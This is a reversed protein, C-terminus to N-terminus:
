VLPGWDGRPPLCLPSLLSGTPKWAYSPKDELECAAGVNLLRFSAGSSSRSLLKLFSTVFASAQPLPRRRPAQAALAM